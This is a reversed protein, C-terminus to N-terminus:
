ISDLLVIDVDEIKKFDRDATILPLNFSKATAAIIADPAKISYKQKISIAMEKINNSLAVIECNNLLSRIINIEYQSINKKGLLEIETIVSIGLSFSYRAIKMAEPNGELTYILVNTDVFFDIGNM